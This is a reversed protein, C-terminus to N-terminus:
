RSQLPIGTQRWLYDVEASSLEDEPFSQMRNGPDHDEGCMYM